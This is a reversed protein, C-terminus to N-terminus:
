GFRRQRQGDKDLKEETNIILLNAAGCTQVKEAKVIFGCTGRSVVMTSGEYCGALASCGNAPDIRRLRHWNQPATPLLEPAYSAGTRPRLQRRIQLATPALETASKDCAPIVLNKCTDTHARSRLMRSSATSVKRSQHTFRVQLQQEAEAISRKDCADVCRHQMQAAIARLHVASGDLCKPQAAPLLLTRNDLSACLHNERGTPHFWLPNYGPQALM